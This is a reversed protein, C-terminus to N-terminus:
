GNACTRNVSANNADYVSVQLRCDSGASCIYHFFESYEDHPSPFYGNGVISAYYRYPETGGTAVVECINDYQSGWHECACSASIATAPAALVLLAAGATAVAMTRLEM